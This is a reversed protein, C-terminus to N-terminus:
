PSKVSRTVRVGKEGGLGGGGGEGLGEGGFGGAGGGQLAVSDHAAASPPPLVKKCGPDVNPSVGGVGPGSWPNRPPASM